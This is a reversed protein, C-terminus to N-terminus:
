YLKQTAIKYHLKITIAIKFQLKTAYNQTAVIESQLKLPCNKAAIKIHLKITPAIKLQM